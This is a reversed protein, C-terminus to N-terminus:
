PSVTLFPYFSTIHLLPSQLSCPGRVGVEARVGDGLYDDDGSDAYFCGGRDVWFSVQNPAHHARSLCAKAKEQM